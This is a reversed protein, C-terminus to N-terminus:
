IEEKQIQPKYNLIAVRMHETANFMDVFEESNEKKGSLYENIMKQRKMLSEFSFYDCQFFGICNVKLGSYTEIVNTKFEMTVRKDNGECIYFLYRM